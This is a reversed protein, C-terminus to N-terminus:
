NIVDTFGVSINQPIVHFGSLIAVDNSYFLNYSKLLPHLKFFNLGIFNLIAAERGNNVEVPRMNCFIM